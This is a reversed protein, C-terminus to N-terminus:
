NDAMELVASSFPPLILTIGDLEPAHGFYDATLTGCLTQAGEINIKKESSSLNHAVAMVREGDTLSWAAVSRDGAKLESPMGYFLVPYRNRLRIAEIYFRTLSAPDRLQEEVGASARWRYDMGFPGRSIGARSKVSWIMPGRKNEDKGSGPMGIEEGYYVFPNGPMTLYLAAAMKQRVIDQNFYAASRNQDHNSLYIADIAEPNKERILRNWNIMATSITAGNQTTVAIPLMGKEDSFTFNFLSPIKSDYFNLITGANDWVEGVMYIDSKKSKCYATFWTLFETSKKQDEYYFLVADLRFGAVGKAIWFDAIAQIEKRVDPNDLNLDPMQDWFAGEYFKGGYGLPYFKNGLRSDAINYYALYKADGRRAAMFWPHETSTHNLVLDIIVKIGRKNCEAILEEFDEMTGFSRDIAMYDIVDYKHYSRSPHIPTLWIGDAHLSRNSALNGNNIYDLKQIIGRIDGTGDGNSDCFSGPFIQYYVGYNGGPSEKQIFETTEEDEFAGGSVAGGSACAIFAILVLVSLTVNLSVFFKKM